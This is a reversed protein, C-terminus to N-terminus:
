KQLLGHLNCGQGGHELLLTLDEACELTSGIAAAICNAVSQLLVIFNYCHSGEYCIVWIVYPLIHFHGAGAPDLVARSRLFRACSRSGGSDAGEFSAHEARDLLNGLVEPLNGPPQALM